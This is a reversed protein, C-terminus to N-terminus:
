IKKLLILPFDFFDLPAMAGGVGSYCLWQTAGRVDLYQPCITALALTSWCSCRGIWGWGRARRPPPFTPFRM